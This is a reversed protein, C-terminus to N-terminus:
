FLLFEALFLSILLLLAFCDVTDSAHDLSTGTKASNAVICVLRPTRERRTNRADALAQAAVFFLKWVQAALLNM